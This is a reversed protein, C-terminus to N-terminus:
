RLASPLYPRERLRGDPSQEARRVALDELAHRVAVRIVGYLFVFGAVYLIMALVLTFM